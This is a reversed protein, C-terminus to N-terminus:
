KQFYGNMIGQQVESHQMIAETRRSEYMQWFSCIYRKMSCFLMFHFPMRRMISMIASTFNISEKQYIM